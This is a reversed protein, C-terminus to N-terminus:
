YVPLSTCLGSNSGFSITSSDCTWGQFRTSGGQAAGIYTVADFFSSLTTADFAAVGDENAGNIYTMALTNTFGSSTNAGADFQTQVQAATTGSGDRFPTACDMVFSEFRVPGAEDIGASAARTLTEITDVRLCPTGSSADVLVSNTITYDARGRIRIAQDLEAGNTIFTANSIQTNQRPTDEELTNSSDAEIITDGAGARQVAVVYQVNAKVGTDTDLSDDEAGVLVLGKVNVEGGFFEAGDDASNFSMINEFNTASGVGGTTLSQLEDGNSLVTGSYRLQVFSVSGSNDDPVNGGYRPPTLTGEVERECQVSGPTATDSLCDTVPARGNLILGGWDGSSTDSNEGRVNQQSTFIIPRSATGDARIQNGRNVNLYSGDLGVLIVGPDITLVVNTDDLGDSDDAAPGGDTGVDVQGDILYIVAGTSPTFQLQSSRNFRAPLQCLRYSGTPGSIVGRDTLGQPDAIFPCDAAATAQAGGTPTGTPTGTPPPNNITINGGTGPSAIEEGCAGLALTSCGIVLIKAFNTM